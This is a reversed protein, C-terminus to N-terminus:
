AFTLVLQNVQTLTSQDDISESPASEELDFYLRKATSHIPLTPPIDGVTPFGFTRLTVLSGCIQQAAGM